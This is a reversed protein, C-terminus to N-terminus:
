ARLGKTVEVKQGIQISTTQNIVYGLQEKGLINSSCSKRAHTKEIGFM